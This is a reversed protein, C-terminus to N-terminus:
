DSLVDILEVLSWFGGTSILRTAIIQGIERMQTNEGIFFDMFDFITKYNTLSHVFLDIFDLTNDTISSNCFFTKNSLRNLVSQFLLFILQAINKYYTSSCEIRDNM